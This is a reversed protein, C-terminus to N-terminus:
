FEARVGAYFNRGRVPYIASGAGIGTLGLPPNTNLINDVGLTFDFNEFEFGVRVDHYFTDPYYEVDAYDANEPARGQLSFIDEYNNLVMKGIFRMEYGFTVESLKLDVTWRFEDQPDGLESLIRNEFDPNSPDEFNSREFLHTYIFRTSIANDEGFPRRYSVEADIGRVTRAAFNLPTIEADADLIQGPQEQNPGLGAGRYRQFIDCFQNDLSPLDYCANVIQQASPASIVDEVRIDYYDVTLSFGPAFTPTFVAGITYSDSKEETLDPNSGSLIELSYNPLTAISALLDPGLDALCNAARNESGAGINAERCPDQFGPAFNQSLASSTESLNPARVSRGYQARFRIDPIPQWEVGANYAVTTGVANDYDSVRVAGSVTLEEFFPTNALIPIRIEGFAEKVTFPDPAFTPLANYFTRGAEVIPDAQFFLEERRYEAGVAFGIPGGPLEFFGSTNGSLYASAVFQELEAVSTTDELIYAGAASNDPAGFPNYPVCNAVDQDLFPEDATDYAIAASPDIQSRCVINGTAPDIASDLALLFRNPVINGLVRTAEKVKGYNLAVEYNWANGFEGRVGGVIRYTERESAEDRSGLDDLFRSFDFRFSGDAIAARDGASLERSLFANKILSGRLGSALLQETIVGRAQESLFPNDLRVGERSDGFTLFQGQIFAPSSQQGQTKINVYKAEVFPVLAPSIEFKALLNVNIREQDPLVSQLTGERGTQGNGGIATGFPGGGIISGATEPVLRGDATFLYLCNYPVDNYGVGCGPADITGVGDDIQAQTPQSFPVLTNFFITRSRIDRVFIRDPNGDSGNPTGAGDADVVVFGDNRRLYSVDSGYVREQNAYEAHLTVNGRGDAFNQGIMGSVYQNPFNGEYNVGVHGRLQVGEFDDRLIFNVVGAIADSGYIASNGGTVVDVREILDNPISNVDVSTGNSLIDSAVHRRGNVLTLTRSTGLGRLDLLNLGTTGLFRGANTQSFTSRLQPLDNLTDGVNVSGQKFFAENDLVTVPVASELEPRAIRSGTVVIANSPPASADEVTEDEDVDQALAPTSIAMAALGAGTLLAARGGLTAFTKKM